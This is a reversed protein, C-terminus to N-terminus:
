INKGAFMSNIVLKSFDIKQQEFNHVQIHYTRDLLATLLEPFAILDDGTNHACYHACSAGSGYSFDFVWNGVVGDSFKARCWAYRGFKGSPEGHEAFKGKDEFAGIHLEQIEPYMKQMNAFDKKVYEIRGIEEGHYHTAPKGGVFVGDKTITIYKTDPIDSM